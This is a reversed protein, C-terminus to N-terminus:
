RGLDARHAYERGLAAAAAPLSHAYGHEASKVSIIVLDNDAFVIRLYGHEQRCLAVLGGSGHAPKHAFVFLEPCARCLEAALKRPLLYNRGYGESVEVLQGKKGQGKVDQQLIVKM